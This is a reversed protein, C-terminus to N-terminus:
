LFIFYFILIFTKTKKVKCMVEVLFLFKNFSVLWLSIPYRSLFYIDVVKSKAQGSLQVRDTTNATTVLNRWVSAQSIVVGGLHHGFIKFCKHCLLWMTVLNLSLMQPSWIDEQAQSIVVGAMHHGIIKICEHHSIVVVAVHPWWIHQSILVGAMHHSFTTVLNTTVLKKFCKSVSWWVPWIHHGFKKFCKHQSIVVVAVHPSWIQQFMQQSIVVGTHWGAWELPERKGVGRGVRGKRVVWRVLPSDKEENKSAIGGELVKKCRLQKLYSM